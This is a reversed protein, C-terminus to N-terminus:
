CDCKSLLAEASYFKIDGGAKSVVAVNQIAGSRLLRSTVERRTLDEENGIHATTIVSVGCNLARLVGDVEGQSGVEDFAVVQPFMTRVAMEIGDTKEAGSIIDTHEGVDNQAVGNHVAAIEGRTDIVAVRKHCVSSLQRVADRLLTTKGSGPPGAILMGGSFRKVIQDACGFVEHAIRINISSVDRLGAPTITGCVGARHGGRMIIFGQKIEDIHSYVSNNCLRLYIDSVQEASVYVVDHPPLYSVTGGRGVWMPAGGVTLILPKGARLRIEETNAMAKPPLSSLIERLEETFPYIASLFRDKLHKKDNM